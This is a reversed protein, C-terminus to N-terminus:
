ADPAGSSAFELGLIAVVAIVADVVAAQLERSWDIENISTRFEVNIAMRANSDDAAAAASM